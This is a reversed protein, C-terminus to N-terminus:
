HATKIDALDLKAQVQASGTTQVLSNLAKVINGEAHMDLLDSAAQHLSYADLSDDRHKLIAAQKTLRNSDMTNIISQISQDAFTNKDISTRAGGLFSAVGSLIRPTAGGTALAATGSLATTSLDFWTEVSSKSAYLLVIYQHFDHNSLVILDEIMDNRLVKKQADAAADFQQNFKPNIWTSDALAPDAVEYRAECSKRDQRNASATCDPLFYHKRISNAQAPTILDDASYLKSATTSAVGALKSTVATCGAALCLFAIVILHKM